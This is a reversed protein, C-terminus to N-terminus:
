PNRADVSISMAAPTIGGGTPNCLLVNIANATPYTVVNLTAASPTYGTVGNPTAEFSWSLRSTTTVGTATFPSGSVTNCTNANVTTTGLAVTLPVAQIMTGNNLSYIAGNLTGGGGNLISIATTFGSMPNDHVGVNSITTTGAVSNNLVFGTTAAVMTNNHVSINKLTMTNTSANNWRVGNGFATVTGDIQNDHIDINQFTTNSSGTGAQVSFAYANSNTGGNIAINDAMVADGAITLGGGSSVSLMFCGNGSGGLLAPNICRNAHMNLGTGSTAFSERYSNIVTNGVIETDTAKDTQQIGESCGTALSGHGNIVFTITGTCSPNCNANTITFTTAGVSAVTFPTANALGGGTIGSFTVVSATPSTLMMQNPATVGAGVTATITAGNGALTVSLPTAGTTDGNCSATGYSNYRVTNGRVITGEVVGIGSASQIALGGDGTDITNNDILVNDAILTGETYITYTCSTASGGPDSAMTYTFTNAGTATAQFVGNYPSLSCSQMDVFTRTGTGGIIQAATTTITALTGVRTATSVALASGTVGIGARTAQEIRNRVGSCEFCNVFQSGWAGGNVIWMDQMANHSGSINVEFGAQSTLRGGLVKFGSLLNNQGANINFAGVAGNNSADITCTWKQLCLVQDNNGSINITISNGETYTGSVWYITINNTTITITAAPSIASAEGTMDCIGGSSALDTICQQLRADATAGALLSTYEYESGATVNVGNGLATGFVRQGRTLTASTLWQFIAGGNESGYSHGDNSAGYAVYGVPSVAMPAGPFALKALIGATGNASIGNAFNGGGTGSYSFTTGNETTNSNGVSTNGNASYFAMQNQLGAGGAGCGTCSGDFTVNGQVELTGPVIAGATPVKSPLDGIQVRGKTGTGTWGQLEVVDANLTTDHYAVTDGAALCLSCSLAANNTSSLLSNFVLKRSATQTLTPYVYNFTGSSFSGTGSSLYSVNAGSVGTIVCPNPMACDYGGGIGSTVFYEGVKPNIAFGASSAIVITATGGSASTSTVQFQESIAGIYMGINTGQFFFAPSANSGQPFQFQTGTYAGVTSTDSFKSPGVTTGSGPTTYLALFNQTGTSVTGSGSGSGCTGFSHNDLLCKTGTGLSGTGLEAQPVFGGTLDAKATLLGTVQQLTTPQLNTAANASLTLAGTLTGGTTPLFGTIATPAWLSGTWGLFQGSTPATSSVNFGQLQSANANQGAAGPCWSNTGQVFTLVQNNTPATTCVNIGGIQTANIGIASLGVVTAQTLDLTGVFSFSTGSPQKVLQSQTPNGFISRFGPPPPTGMFPQSQALNFAGTSAVLCNTSSSCLDYNLDGAIPTNSDAWATVHWLTSYSNGCTIENNGYITAPLQSPRLQMHKLVMTTSSSPVIPVNYGCNELDLTLYAFSAPQGTPSNFTANVTVTAFAQLSAFLVVALLKKMAGCSEGADVPIRLNPV